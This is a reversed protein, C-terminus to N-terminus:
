LVRQHIITNNSFRNNNSLVPVIHQIPNDKLTATVDLHRHLDPFQRQQPHHDEAPVSRELSQCELGRRDRKSPRAEKTQEFEREVTLDGVTSRISQHSVGTRLRGPRWRPYQEAQTYRRRAETAPDAPTGAATNGETSGPGPRGGRDGDPDAQEEYRRRSAPRVADRISRLDDITSRLNERANVITDVIEDKHEALLSDEASATAAPRCVGFGLMLSLALAGILSRKGASTTHKM